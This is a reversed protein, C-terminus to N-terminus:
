RLWAPSLLRLGISVWHGGGGVQNGYTTDVQVREPVVWHRVGVQYAPKDRGRGFTEAVLWTRAGLQTESGLGWTVRDARRDQERAWGLNAHVVLRDDLWSRSIPAYAYWERGPGAQPDQVAGLVLGWGWDNAQLPRLLTKAQLVRASLHTSGGENRLAGGATLELNGTINCGPLAWAETSGHAHRVWSEVQCAHPDVLRADDTIMPRAAHVAQAGLLAAGACAAARLAGLDFLRCNVVRM